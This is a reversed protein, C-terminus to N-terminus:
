GNLLTGEETTNGLIMKPSLNVYDVGEVGVTVVGESLVVKGCGCVDTIECVAGCHKCKVRVPLDM